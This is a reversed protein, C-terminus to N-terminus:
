EWGLKNRMEVSDRGAKEIEKRTWAPLRRFRILSARLRQGTKDESYGIDWYFIAGPQVLERDFPSVEEIPFEAIQDPSKKARDRLRATFAQPTASEVFGEWSQLSQFHDKEIPLPKPFVLPSDEHAFHEATANRKTTEGIVSTNSSRIEDRGKTVYDLNLLPGPSPLVASSWKSEDTIIFAASQSVQRFPRSAKRLISASGKM